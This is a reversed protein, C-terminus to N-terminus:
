SRHVQEKFLTLKLIGFWKFLPAWYFRKFDWNTKPFNKVDIEKGKEIVLVDYGKEALRMASVSGGFGSGIVIYDYVKSM